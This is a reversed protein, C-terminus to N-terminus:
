HIFSPCSGGVPPRPEQRPACRGRLETLATAGLAGQETATSQSGPLEKGAHGPYYYTALGREDLWLAPTHVWDSLVWREAAPMQIRL